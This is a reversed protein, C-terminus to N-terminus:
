HCGSITDRRSKKSDIGEKGPGHRHLYLHMAPCALFLLYPATGLKGGAQERLFYFVFGAVLATALLCLFQRSFLTSVM